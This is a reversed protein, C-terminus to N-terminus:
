QKSRPLLSLRLEFLTDNRKATILNVIETPLKWAAIEMKITMIIVSKERTQRYPANGSTRTFHNVLTDEIANSADNFKVQIREMTALTRDFAIEAKAPFGFYSMGFIVTTDTSGELVHHAECLSRAENLRMEWRLENLVPFSPDRNLIQAGAISSTVIMTVLAFLYQRQAM